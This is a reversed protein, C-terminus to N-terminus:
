SIRNKGISDTGYKCLEIFVRQSICLHRCAEDGQVNVIINYDPYKRAVEALRDTGTPHRTSTMIVKGGFRLVEKEIDKHDTAVICLQPIKAKIAQKYVREILTKGAIFKLPKGPLRTSAFRSPIICAVKEM